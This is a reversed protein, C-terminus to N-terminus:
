VGVIYADWSDSHKNVHGAQLEDYSDARRFTARVDEQRSTRYSRRHVEPSHGMVESAYADNIGKRTCRVSFSDRFAYPKLYVGKSEYQM